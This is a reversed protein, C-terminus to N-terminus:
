LSKDCVQRYGCSRCRAADRHQPSVDRTTFGSRMEDLTNLLRTKLQPTYDIEFAQDRYKIIGYEPPQEYTDEVLLCYAALQMIHSPYPVEPAVRSKVEVPIYTRGQQILYDPKGSVGYTPSFLPATCRSWSTTDTYVVRGRPLGTRQRLLQSQSLLWLAAIILILFVLTLQIVM